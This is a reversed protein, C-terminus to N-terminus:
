VKVKKSTIIDFVPLFTLRNSGKGNIARKYLIYMRNRQDRCKRTGVKGLCNRIHWKTASESGALKVFDKHSFCRLAALERYLEM